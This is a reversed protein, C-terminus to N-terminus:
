KKEPVVVQWETRFSSCTHPHIICSCNAYHMCIAQEEFHNRKSFFINKIFYKPVKVESISVLPLFKFLLCSLWSASYVTDPKKFDLDQFIGAKSKWENNRAFQCLLRICLALLEGLRSRIVRTLMSENWFEMEPCIIGCFYKRNLPLYGQSICIEEPWTSEYVAGVGRLLIFTIGNFAWTAQGGGM